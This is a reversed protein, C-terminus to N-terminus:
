ASRRTGKSLAVDNRSPTIATDGRRARPEEFAVPRRLLSQFRLDQSDETSDGRFDANPLIDSSAKVYVEEAAHKKIDPISAEGEGRGRKGLKTSPMDHDVEIDIRM